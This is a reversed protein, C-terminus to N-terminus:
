SFNTGEMSDGEETLPIGDIWLRNWSMGIGFDGQPKALSIGASVYDNWQDHNLESHTWSVQTKELRSILAPNTKIASITNDFIYGTEGKASIAASYGLETLINETGGAFISLASVIMLVVAFGKM